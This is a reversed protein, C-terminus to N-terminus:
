WPIRLLILRRDLIQLSVFCLLLLSLPVKTVLACSPTKRVLVHQEGVVTNLCMDLCQRVVVERYIVVSELYM